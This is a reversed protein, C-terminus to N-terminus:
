DHRAEMQDSIWQDIEYELWGVARRGLRISSPFRKDKMAAYISSRRLGSKEIVKPLRIVRKSKTDGVQQAVSSVISEPTLEGSLSSVQGIPFTGNPSKASKM